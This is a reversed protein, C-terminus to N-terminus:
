YCLDPWILYLAVIENQKVMKTLRTLNFKDQLDQFEKSLHEARNDSFARNVKGLPFVDDYFSSKVM